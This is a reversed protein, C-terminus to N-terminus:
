IRFNSNLIYISVKPPSHSVAVYFDNSNFDPNYSILDSIANVNLSLNKQNIENLAIYFEGPQGTSENFECCCKKSLKIAATKNDNSNKCCCSSTNRLKCNESFLGYSGTISIIFSILILISFFKLGYKKLSKLM